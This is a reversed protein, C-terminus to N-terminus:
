GVESASLTKTEHSPRQYSLLYSSSSCVKSTWNAGIIYRFSTFVDSWDTSAHHSKLWTDASHKTSAFASINIAVIPANNATYKRSKWTRRASQKNPIETTQYGSFRIQLYGISKWRLFRTVKGLFNAAFPIAFWIPFNLLTEREAKFVKQFERGSEETLLFLLGSHFSLAVISGVDTEGERWAWAVLSSQLARVHDSNRRPSHEVYLMRRRGETGKEIRKKELPLLQLEVGFWCRYWLTLYQGPEGPERKWRTRASWESRILRLTVATKTHITRDNPILTGKHSM